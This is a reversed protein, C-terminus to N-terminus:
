DNGRALGVGPTVPRALLRLTPPEPYPRRRVASPAAHRDLHSAAWL